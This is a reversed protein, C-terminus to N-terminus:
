GLVEVSTVEKVSNDFYSVFDSRLMDINAIRGDDLGCLINGHDITISKIGTQLDVSKILRIDKM